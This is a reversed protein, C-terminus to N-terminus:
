VTTGHFCRGFAKRVPTIARIGDREAGRASQTGLDRHADDRLMRLCLAHFTCATVQKAQDPDIIRAIRDKMEKAAKNTFTVAMIKAPDEGQAILWSIRATITRTKGTGAGALILMPGSEHRVAEAQEENLDFLRFRSM